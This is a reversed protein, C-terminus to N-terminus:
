AGIREVRVDRVTADQETPFEAPRGSLRLWQASCGGAPVEFRAEITKPTSSIKVLPLEALKAKSQACDM